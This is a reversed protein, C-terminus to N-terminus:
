LAALFRCHSLTSNIECRFLPLRTPLNLWIVLRLAAPWRFNTRHMSGIPGSTESIQEVSTLTRADLAVTFDCSRWKAAVFSSRIQERTTVFTGRLRSWFADPQLRKVWLNFSM